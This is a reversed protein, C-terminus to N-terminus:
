LKSPWAPNDTDVRYVGYVGQKWTRKSTKWKIIRFGWLGLFRFGLVRFGM